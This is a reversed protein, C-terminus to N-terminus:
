LLLQNVQHALPIESPALAQKAIPLFTLRIPSDRGVFCHLLRRTTRPKEFFAKCVRCGDPGCSVEIHRLVKYFIKVSSLNVIFNKMIISLNTKKGILIILIFIFVVKMGFL